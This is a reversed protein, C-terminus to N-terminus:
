GVSASNRKNIVIKHFHAKHFLIYSETKMRYSVKRKLNWNNLFYGPEFAAYHHTPPMLSYEDGSLGYVGYYLYIMGRDLRKRSGGRVDFVNSFTYM